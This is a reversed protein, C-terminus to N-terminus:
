SARLSRMLRSSWHWARTAASRSSVCADHQSPQATPNAMRHQTEHKALRCGVTDLPRACQTGFCELVGLAQISLQPRKHRTGLGSLTSNVLCPTCGFQSPKHNGKQLKDKRPDLLDDTLDPQSQTDLLKGINGFGGPLHGQHQESLLALKKNIGAPSKLACKPPQLSLARNDRRRPARFPVFAVFGGQLGKLIQFLGNREPKIRGRPGIQLLSVSVGYLVRCSPHRSVLDAACRREVCVNSLELLLKRPKLLIDLVKKRAVERVSRSVNAIRNRADRVPPLGTDTQGAMADAFPIPESQYIPDNVIGLDDECEFKVVLGLHRRHCFGLNFSGTLLNPRDKFLFQDLAADIRLHELKLAVGAVPSGKGLREGARRCGPTRPQLPSRSQGLVQRYKDACRTVYSTLNVSKCHLQFEPMASM